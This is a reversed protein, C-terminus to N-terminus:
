FIRKQLGRQPRTIAFWDLITQQVRRVLLTLLIGSILGLLVFCSDPILPYLGKNGEKTEMTVDITFADLNMLLQLKVADGVGNFKENSLRQRPRPPRASIPPM